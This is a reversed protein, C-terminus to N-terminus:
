SQIKRSIFVRTTNSYTIKDPTSARSPIWASYAMTCDYQLCIRSAWELVGGAILVVVTKLDHYIRSYISHLFEPVQYGKAAWLRCVSLANTRQKLDYNKGLSSGIVTSGSLSDLFYQTVVHVDSTTMTGDLDFVVCKTGKELIFMSGRGYTNDDPLLGLIHYHGADDVM